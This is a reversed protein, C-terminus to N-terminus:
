GIAAELPTEVDQAGAAVGDIGRYAIQEREADALWHHRPEAPIPEVMQGHRLAAAGLHEIPCPGRRLGRRESRVTRARAPMGSVPGMLM